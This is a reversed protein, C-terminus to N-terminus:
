RSSRNKTQQSVAYLAGCHSSWNVCGGVTSFPEEKEVAQAGNTTRLKRSIRKRATTYGRKWDSKMEMEVMDLM